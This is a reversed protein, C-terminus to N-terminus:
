GANEATVFDFLFKKGRKVLCLKQMFIETKIVNMSSTYVYLKQNAERTRKKGENGAVSRKYHSASLSANEYHFM